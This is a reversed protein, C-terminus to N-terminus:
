TRAGRALLLKVTDAQGHGAAWMLATLRNAYPTDVAIGHALMAQVVETHGLAAAYVM